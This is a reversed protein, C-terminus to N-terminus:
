SGKKKRDERREEIRGGELGGVWRRVGEEKRERGEGDSEYMYIYMHIFIDM